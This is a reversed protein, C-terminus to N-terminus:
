IVEKKVWIEKALQNNQDLGIEHNLGCLYPFPDKVSSRRCTLSNRFSKELRFVIILMEVRIISLQPDPWNTRM